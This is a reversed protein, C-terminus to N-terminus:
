MTDDVAESILQTMYEFIHELIQPLNDVSMM